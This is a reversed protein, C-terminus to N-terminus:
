EEEQLRRVREDAEASESGAESQGSKGGGVFWAWIHSLLIVGQLGVLAPFLGRAVIGEQCLSFVRNQMASSIHGQFRCNWNMPNYHMPSRYYRIIDDRISSNSPLAPEFYKPIIRYADDGNNYSDGDYVPDTSYLERAYILVIVSALFSLAELALCSLLITRPPAKRGKWSSTISLSGAIVGAFVCVAGASVLASFTQTDYYQPLYHMRTFWTDYTYNGVVAPGVIVAYATESNESGRGGAWAISDAALAIITIAIAANLFSLIITSVHRLNLGPKSDNVTRQDAM